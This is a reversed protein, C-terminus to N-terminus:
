IKTDCVFLGFDEVTGHIVSPFQPKLFGFIKGVAISIQNNFDDMEEDWYPAGLDAYALAQSGAFIMRQGDTDGPTGWKSGSPAGSTNYVYRNAHIAIGDVYITDFGSFLPNQPSRPQADRVAAHFVPDLKLHKMGQPTVFVHYLETGMDGRVPKLYEDQAKAKLELLMQYTPVTMDTAATDGAKLGTTNGTWRFHRNATPAKVDSAFELYPLDSGVRLAGNNRYAYSVGSMTLFAMQDIRDGCWYGLQDRAETRFNVITKQDAVRGENKHAHRLQDVRIVQTSMGLAEENGKLTRDGAVGDGVADPILTIIAQTGKVSSRLETIRQVVADTSSSLLRTLFSKQRAVKWFMMSWAQRQHETLKAFNTVSSM